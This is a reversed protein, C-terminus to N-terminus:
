HRPVSCTSLGLPYYVPCFGIAGTLLPILGLYGWPTQQGVFVLALLGTGLIMRITRDIIGLISKLIIRKPPPNKHTM